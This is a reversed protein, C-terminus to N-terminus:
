SALARYAIRDVAMAGFLFALYAMSYLYLGLAAARTPDRRVQWARWIFLGGALTAGALYVLGFMGLAVLALSLGILVLTYIWIQRQTEAEGAVVNMMPIKAAAYNRTQMLALAWFHPPTWMFVIVFLSLATLDLSNAVAAWGVLAPIAGAGGGIVINQPTSRKLWMTYIVTYYFFGALSLMAALLNVFVAFLVFSLAGLTLGFALAAGPSVRGAAVPRIRTRNSLLKDIDHDYAMNVASAGGAMLYGGLMTVLVLALPPLGRPTLFMAAFTTFLLLAVVKPKTLAIADAVGQRWRRSASPAPLDYNM